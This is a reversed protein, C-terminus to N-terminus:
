DMNCPYMAHISSVRIKSILTRRNQKAIEPDEKIFESIMSRVEEPLYTHHTSIQKLLRLRTSQSHLNVTAGNLSDAIPSDPNVLFLAVIDRYKLHTETGQPWGMSRQDYGMWNVKHLSQAPSSVCVFLCVFLM